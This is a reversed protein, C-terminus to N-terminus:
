RSRELEDAIVRLVDKLENIFETRDPVTALDVEERGYLEREAPSLEVRSEPLRSETLAGFM